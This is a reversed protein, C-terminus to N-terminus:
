SELREVMRAGPGNALRALSAWAVRTPTPLHRVFVMTVENTPVAGRHRKFRGVGASAHVKWGHDAAEDAYARSLMRYLGVHGPQHTDYGFLPATVVREVRWFGYVADLADHRVLARVHLGGAAHWARWTAVTPTPNASTHKTVYLREYLTHMREFAESPLDQADVVEYGSRRLLTGDRRFSKKRRVTPDAPDQYWIRRAFMPRYGLRSLTDMLAASHVGDISRWALAHRPYRELAARHLREITSRDLPPHLNTSVLRNNLYLTRDVGARRLIWGLGRLGADLGTSGPLPPQVAVLEARSAGVYHALPSAVYSENARGDVGERVTFPIARDDAVAVGVTAHVNTIAHHSPRGVFPALWGRLHDSAGGDPWPAAEGATLDYLHATM